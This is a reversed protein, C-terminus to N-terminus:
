PLGRRGLRRLFPEIADPAFRACLAVFLSGCVVGHAALVAASALIPDEHVCAAYSRNILAAPLACAISILLIRLGHAGLGSFADGGFRSRWRMGLITTYFLVALASAGAVGPPGLWKAGAFFLPLSLVTALTGLVVPSMMDQRAYFARGLIQQVGWGSAASVFIALLLATPATDKGASFQGQQFVLTIAPRAAVILWLTLPILLTLIHRLAQNLTQSFRRTDARAVLEALFPFSAVGAAQAVAGVPVMMIRRAYNLWSVAGAGCLSGFIRVLQEDWVVISQGIILPLALAAFRLVGPHLFQLTLKLGDGKLAALYPLLFSGLFAGGLVGWCFGEMGRHRLMLGGIIILGNYVIPCLAPILFQKRLYLLALLCAGALFFMQAPLIIRIFFVLRASAAPDLGPAAFRALAPAILMAIATLAASCIVVWTFVASFFRWGDEPDKEFRSSLLPILTISFYAGALMHNLFDPIVFAAFYLDSETGAGFLYSIVKDRVLGMLRSLLISAGTILAAWGMHHRQKWFAM